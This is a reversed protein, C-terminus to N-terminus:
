RPTASNGAVNSDVRHISTAIEGAVAAYLLAFEPDRFDSGSGLFGNPRGDKGPYYGVVDIHDAVVFAVVRNVELAVIADSGQAVQRLTDVVADSAGIELPPLPHAGIVPISPKRAEFAQKVATVGRDSRAARKTSDYLFAFLYGAPTPRPEARAITVFRARHIDPLAPDEMTQDMIKAVNAPMLDDILARTLLLSLFYSSGVGRSHLANSVLDEAAGDQLLLPIVGSIAGILASPWRLLLASLPAQVLDHASKIAFLRALPSLALSTGALPAAIAVVSRIARRIEDVDAARQEGPRATRALLEADLGGTSHGVLHLLAGPHAARIDRLQEILKQQRAELSGAPVTEVADVEIARGADAKALANALAKGVTQAFYAHDGLKNFGLFGPILVVRHDSRKVAAQADAVLTKMAEGM